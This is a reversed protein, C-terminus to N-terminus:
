KLSRPEAPEGYSVFYECPIQVFRGQKYDTALSQLFTELNPALVLIQPSQTCFLVIQGVVGGPEPLLDIVLCDANESDTFVIFQDHYRAPGFTEFESQRFCDLDHRYRATCEVIERTGRLWYHSYGGGTAPQRMMPILPDGYGSASSYFDQGDHCLLFHRLDDPFALELSEEASRIEDKSAPARLRPNIPPHLKEIADCLGRITSRM